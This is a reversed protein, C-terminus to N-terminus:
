FNLKEKLKPLVEDEIWKVGKSTLKYYRERSNPKFVYGRKMMENLRAPVVIKKGSIKLCDRLERSSSQFDKMSFLLLGISEYHSIEDKYLIVPKNQRIEVLGKLKDQSEHENILSVRENIDIIFSKPLNDLATIIEEPSEGSVKIEGFTTKIALSFKPM